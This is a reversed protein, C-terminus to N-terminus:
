LPKKRGKGFDEAKTPRKEWIYMPNRMVKVTTQKSYRRATYGAAFDIRNDRDLPRSPRWSRGCCSQTRSAASRHVPRCTIASWTTWSPYLPRLCPLFSPSSCRSARPSTLACMYTYLELSTIGASQRIFTVIDRISLKFIRRWIRRISQLWQIM